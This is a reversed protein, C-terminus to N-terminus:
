KKLNNQEYTIDADDEDLQVGTNAMEEMWREHGAYYVRPKTGAEEKWPKASTRDIAKVLPDEPNDLDGFQLSKSITRPLLWPASVLLPM